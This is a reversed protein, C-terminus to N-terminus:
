LLVQARFRASCVRWLAAIMHRARLRQLTMNWISFFIHGVVLLLGRGCCLFLGGLAGGWLLPLRNGTSLRSGAMGWFGCSWCYLALCSLTVVNVGDFVQM